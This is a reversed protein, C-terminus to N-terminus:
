GELVQMVTICLNSKELNLEIQQKIETDETIILTQTATSLKEKILPISLVEFTIQMTSCASELLFGCDMGSQIFITTYQNDKYKKITNNVLDQYESVLKLTRRFYNYSRHAILNLGSPTVLYKINRANLKKVCLYGKECFRRILANTSGLSLNLSKAFERQGANPNQNLASHVNALYLDDNEELELKKGATIETNM